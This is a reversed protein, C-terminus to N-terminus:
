VTGVSKESIQQGATSELSDLKCRNQVSTPVTQPKPQSQKPQPQSQKPQSQKPEWTGFRAATTLRMVNGKHKAKGYRQKQEKVSLVEAVGAKVLERAGRKVTKEDPRIGESDKLRGVRTAISKPYVQFWADPKDSAAWQYLFGLLVKAAM